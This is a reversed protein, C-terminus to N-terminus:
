RKRVSIVAATWIMEALAIVTLLTLRTNTRKVPYAVPLRGYRERTLSAFYCRTRCSGLSEDTAM